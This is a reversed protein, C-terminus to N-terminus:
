IVNNWACGGMQIEASVLCVALYKFQSSSNSSIYLVLNVDYMRLLWYILKGANEM